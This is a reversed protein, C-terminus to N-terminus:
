KMSANFDLKVYENWNNKSALVGIRLYDFRARNPNNIWNTENNSSMNPVQM